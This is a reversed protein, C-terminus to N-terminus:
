KQEMSDKKNRQQQTRCNQATFAKKVESVGANEWSSISIGSTHSICCQASSTFYSPTRQSVPHKTYTLQSETFSAEM